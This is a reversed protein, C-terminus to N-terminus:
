CFSDFTGGHRAQEQGCKFHIPAVNISKSAMLYESGLWSFPELGAENGPESPFVFCCEVM